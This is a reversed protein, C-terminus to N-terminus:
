VLGLWNTPEENLTVLPVRVAVEVPTYKNEVVACIVTGFTVFLIDPEIETATHGEPPSQKSFM